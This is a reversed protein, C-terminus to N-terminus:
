SRQECSGNYRTRWWQMNYIEKQRDAYKKLYADYSKRAYELPNYIHTVPPGFNLTKLATVQADTIKFLDMTTKKKNKM